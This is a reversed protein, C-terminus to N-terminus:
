KGGSLAELLGNAASLEKRLRHVEARLDAVCGPCGWANSADAKHQECRFHSANHKLKEYKGCLDLVRNGAESPTEGGTVAQMRVKWATVESALDDREKVTRKWDEAKVIVSDFHNQPLEHQCLPKDCHKGKPLDDGCTGCYRVGPIGKGGLDRWLNPGKKGNKM